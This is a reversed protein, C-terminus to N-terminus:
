RYRNGYLSYYKRWSDGQITTQGTTAAAGDLTFNGVAILGANDASFDGQSGMSVTLNGGASVKTADISGGFNGGDLVINGAHSAM